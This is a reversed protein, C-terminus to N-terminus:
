GPLTISDFSGNVISIMSGHEGGVLRRGGRRTSISYVIVSTGFGYWIGSNVTSGGQHSMVYEYVIVAGSPSAATENSLSGDDRVNVNLLRCSTKKDPVSKM